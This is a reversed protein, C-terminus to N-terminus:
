NEYNGVVENLGKSKERQFRIKLSYSANTYNCFNGFLKKQKDRKKNHLKMQCVKAMNQRCFAIPDNFRSKVRMDKM